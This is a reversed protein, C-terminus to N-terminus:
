CRVKLAETYCENFDSLGLRLPIFLLLPKWKRPGSTVKMPPPSHGPQPMVLESDICDYSDDDEAIAISNSTKNATSKPSRERVGQTSSPSSTQYTGTCTIASSPSLSIPRNITLFARSM